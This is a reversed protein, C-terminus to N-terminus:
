VIFNNIFDPNLLQVIRELGILDDQDFFSLNDSDIDLVGIVEENKNKLPIVIESKSRNDCAVHDPFKTVDPVIISKKSKVVAWCVGKPEPLIQCAVPGQYASVILQNNNKMYFGVWFFGPNKHYLIANITALQATLNSESKLLTDLQNYLREYKLSKKSM